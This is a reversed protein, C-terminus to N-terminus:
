FGCSFDFYLLFSFIGWFDEFSCITEDLHNPNVLECSLFHNITHGNPKSIEIVQGHCKIDVVDYSLYCLNFVPVNYVHTHTKSCVTCYNKSSM